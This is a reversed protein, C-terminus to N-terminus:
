PFKLSNLIIAFYPKEKDFEEDPAQLLMLYTKDNKVLSIQSIRM